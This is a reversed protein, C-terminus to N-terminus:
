QEDGGNKTTFLPQSCEEKLIKQAIIKGKQATGVSCNAKDGLERVTLKPNKLFEEIAKDQLSVESKIPELSIHRAKKIIGEFVTGNRVLEAMATEIGKITSKAYEKKASLKQQIMRSADNWRQPETEILHKIAESPIIPAKGIAQANAAARDQESAQRWKLIPPTDSDMLSNNELEYAMPTQPMKFNTKVVQLIKSKSDHNGVPSILMAVRVAATVQASGSFADMPDDNQGMSKRLHAVFIISCGTNRAVQTMPDIISRVAYDGKIDDEAWSGLPDIFVLKINENVILNKLPDSAEAMNPIATGKSDYGHTWLVNNMDAGAARLRPKLAMEPDDERTVFLVKKPQGGGTGDPMIDGRTLRAAIDVTFLGKSSGQKGGLVHTAGNLIYGEWLWEPTKEETDSFYKFALNTDNTSSSSISVEKINSENNLWGRNKTPPENKVSDFTHDLEKQSWPSALNSNYFNIYEWSNNEDLDFGDFIARIVTTIGASGNGGEISPIKSIYNKIRSDKQNEEYNVDIDIHSTDSLSAFEPNSFSLNFQSLNGTNTKNKSLDLVEANPNYYAEPDYSIFCARSPDKGSEDVKIKYKDVFHNKVGEWKAKYEKSDTSCPLTKYIVKLGGSPSVFSTIVNPDTKLDNKLAESKQIDYDDIDLILAGSDKIWGAKSRKSFEGAPTFYPLQKKLQSRKEKDKNHRIEEIQNKFKDSRISEIVEELTNSNMLSSKISESYSIQM